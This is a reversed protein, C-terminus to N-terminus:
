SDAIVTSAFQPCYCKSLLKGNGDEFHRRGFLLANQFYLGVLLCFFWAMFSVMNCSLLSLLLLLLKRMPFSDSYSLFCGSRKRWAEYFYEYQIVATPSPPPPTRNIGCFDLKKEPRYKKKDLMWNQSHLLCYSVYFFRCSSITLYHRGTECVLPLRSISPPNLSRFVRSCDNLHINNNNKRRKKGAQGSKPLTQLWLCKWETVCAESEEEEENFPFFVATAVLRLNNNKGFNSLHFLSFFFSSSPKIAALQYLWVRGAYLTHPRNVVINVYQM